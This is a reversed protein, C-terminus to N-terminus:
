YRSNPAKNGVLGRKGSSNSNFRGVNSLLQQILNLDKGHTPTRRTILDIVRGDELGYSNNELVVGNDDFLIETVKQDFTYSEFATEQEAYSVYYWAKDNFNSTISPTGLRSRVAERTDQGKQITQLKDVSPMYGRYSVTPTCGLLFGTLTFLLFPASFPKLMKLSDSRLHTM